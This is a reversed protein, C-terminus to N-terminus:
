VHCAAGGFCGRSPSVARVMETVYARMYEMDGLEDCMSKSTKKAYPAGDVGTELLLCAVWLWATVHTCLGAPPGLM